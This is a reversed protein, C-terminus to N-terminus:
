DRRASFCIFLTFLSSYSISSLANLPSYYGIYLLLCRLSPWSFLPWQFIGFSFESNRNKWPYETILFILILSVLLIQCSCVGSVFCLQVPQFNKCKNVQKRKFRFSWVLVTCWFFVLIALYSILFIIKKKCM